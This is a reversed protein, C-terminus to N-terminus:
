KGVTGRTSERQGGCDRLRIEKRVEQKGGSLVKQLVLALYLTSFRSTDTDREGKEKRRRFRDNRGGVTHSERSRDSHKLVHPQIPLVASAM